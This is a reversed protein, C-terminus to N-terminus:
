GKGEGREENRRGLAPSNHKMGQDGPSRETLADDFMWSECGLRASAQGKM